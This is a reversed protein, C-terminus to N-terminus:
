LGRPVAAKARQRVATPAACRGAPVVGARAGASRACLSAAGAPCRNRRRAGRRRRRQPAPHRVALVPLRLQGWAVPPLGRERLRATRCVPWGLVPPGAAPVLGHGCRIGGPTRSSCRTSCRGAAAAGGAAGALGPRIGAAAPGGPAERMAGSM